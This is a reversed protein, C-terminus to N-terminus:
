GHSCGTSPPHPVAVPSSSESEIDLPLRSALSSTGDSSCAKVLAHHCRCASHHCRQAAVTITARSKTPVATIHRQPVGPPSPPLAQRGVLTPRITSILSPAKGNAQLYYRALAHGTVPGTSFLQGPNGALPLLFGRIWVSWGDQVQLCGLPFSIGM